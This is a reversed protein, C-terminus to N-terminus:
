AGLGGSECERLILGELLGADSVKMTDFGFSDMVSLVIASGPIILDERGKELTLIEEREAFKLRSLREYMGKVAGLTLTYNNIKAPDYSAIDQDLAALTTITGATGVLVTRDPVTRDPVTRDQVTRDPVTRDQVTRDPVTRDPVTEPPVSPEGVDRRMQEKLGSIIDAIEEKMAKLEGKQPPDSKLHDETLHVVGMEMSWSGVVESGRTLIFETSGGGIDMVFRADGDGSGIVSLVGLVALWAEESGDIVSIQLSTRKLAESLFWDRNVARRVVSTAVAIVRHVGNEEIAKKFGGLTRITREASGRDIGNTETYGGGLRTIARKYLLPRLGTPEPEAILLRLTNTGIDISAYKV